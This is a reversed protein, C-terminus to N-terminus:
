FLSLEHRSEPKREFPMLTPTEEQNIQSTWTPTIGLKGQKEQM